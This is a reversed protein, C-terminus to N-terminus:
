AFVGQLYWGQADRFIWAWQGQGNRAVFYDRRIDGTAHSVGNADTEGSDWWGSELREGRTVLQLPGHWHPGDPREALPQPAPLLWLPRPATCATVM